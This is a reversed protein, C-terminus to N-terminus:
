ILKVDKGLRSSLGIRSGKDGAKVIIGQGIATGSGSHAPDGLRIPTYDTLKTNIGVYMGMGTNMGGGIRLTYETHAPKEDDLIQRLGKEYSSLEESSLDLIVTFRYATQLFPDEPSQVVDRLASRGLISSDGLRFGQIPTRQLISNVGLKFTERQNRGQGPAEKGSLVMAKGIKSHELILPKKGTYIRILEEIGTRTGKIKYLEVARQIFYRKKDEPWGEELSVNLWSALWALFKPPATEPDFIKFVESIDTELGYLVSEFLSLFRELFDKSVPDEQYIAPLYRLYSIRPYYIKMRSVIPVSNEDFTSLALKLWLYRGPKGRFLMDKPNKESEKWNGTTNIRKVENEPETWNKIANDISEAKHQTSSDEDRLIDEVKEKLNTDDSSYYYVKFLTKPPLKADLFLRHWQCKQIGSDLTRSYYFGEQKTFKQEADFLSIGKDTYAYLKGGWGIAMGYIKGTFNPIQIKGIYSGDPDFQHISAISDITVVVFIRGPKDIFISSLDFKKSDFKKSDFNKYSDESSFIKSLDGVIGLFEGKDTCKFFGNCEKEILFLANDKGIAFGAPDRLCSQDYTLCSKDYSEKNIKNISCLNGYVDYKRIEFTQEGTHERKKDLVYLYGHEELVIDIPDSLDEIIYKIQYNNRSFAIIRARNERKGADFIWLTFKDAAIKKPNIFRLHNVESSGACSILELREIEPDYHYIQYYEKEAEKERKIEKDIFYLQGCKDVTLCIPNKISDGALIWRSFSPVFYLSISGDELTNLGYFLGGKEWQDPTQFVQTKIEQEAM